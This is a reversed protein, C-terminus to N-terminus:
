ELRHGMIEFMKILRHRYTHNNRVYEFGEKAIREKEEEHTLYYNIKEVMEEFIDDFVILHKGEEFIEEFGNNSIRHTIVLAGWGMAEFIRPNIDNNISYNVVIKTRSYYDRLETFHARGMFFNKYNIKLIELVVKRLSYKGTTGIFCIDWKKDKSPSFDQPIEDTAWPIWYCKKGTERQLREAGEKQACFVFDYNKIKDKIKKYPKPLHTDAVWWARPHLYSPIEQSYDGDDIRLYLDFGNKIKQIEELNFQEIELHSYSELIKQCREGLGVRQNRNYILAIRM